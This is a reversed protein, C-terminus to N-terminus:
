ARGRIMLMFIRITGVLTFIVIKGPAALIALNLAARNYDDELSFPNDIMTGGLGLNSFDVGGSVVSAFGLYIALVIWYGPNIKGQLEGSSLGRLPIEVQEVLWPLGYVIAVYPGVCVILSLIWFIPLKVWTATPIRRADDGPSQSAAARVAAPDRGWGCKECIHIAGIEQPHPELDSGCKPCEM